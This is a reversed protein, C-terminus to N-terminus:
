RFASDWFSFYAGLFLMGSVSGLHNKVWAHSFYMLEQKNQNKRVICLSKNIKIRRRYVYFYTPINEMIGSGQASCNYLLQCSFAHQQAPM